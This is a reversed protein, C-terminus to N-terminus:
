SQVRRRQLLAFIILFLISEALALGLLFSRSGAGVGVAIGGTGAHPSQLGTLLASILPYFAYLIVLLFTLMLSLLLALLINRLTTTSSM